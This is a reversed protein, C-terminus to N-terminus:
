KKDLQSHRKIERSNKFSLKAPKSIGSFEQNDAKEKLM